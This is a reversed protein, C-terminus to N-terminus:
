VDTRRNYMEYTRVLKFVILLLTGWFLIDTLHLPRFPRRTGFTEHALARSVEVASEISSYPTKRPSMMGCMAVKSCTGYFPLQGHLSLVGSSQSFTWKSGDWDAGWGIRASVPKPLNLQSIVGAMLTEPDTALISDTLHCIVCSVTKTDSLVVPQIKWETSMSSELDSPLTMPTDYDLLVNIAGYTSGRLKEDADSGWNTGLFTLAPSNDLCLFLMGDDLITGNSFVARYSDPQYEVTELEIGFVFHGGANLVATEMADCMGKGSGRQTFVKSLAVHDFSRVFEYASMVNWPVGDMILPLHELVAQGSISMPGLAQKLSINKYMGQNALVRIALSTLAMYDSFELSNFLLTYTDTKKEEFIDTWEIGMEEFISQTNIFARDFVIRHAHMDRTDLSPEWWSGGASVKRDYISVSHGQNSQLLEWALSLGTPGAGVIHIKMNNKVVFKRPPM